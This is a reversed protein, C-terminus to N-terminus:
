GIEPGPRDFKLCRNTEVITDSETETSYDEHSRLKYGLNGATELPGEFFVYTGAVDGSFYNNRFAGSQTPLYDRFLVADDRTHVNRCLNKM